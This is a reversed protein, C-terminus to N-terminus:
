KDYTVIDDKVEGGVGVVLRDRGPGRSNIEVASDAFFNSWPRSHSKELTM